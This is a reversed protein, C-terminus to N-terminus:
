RLSSVTFDQNIELHKPYKILQGGGGAYSGAIYRLKAFITMSIAYYVLVRIIVPRVFPQLFPLVQAIWLLLGSSSSSGRTRRSKLIIVDTKKAMIIDDDLVDCGADDVDRLLSSTIEVDFNSKAM